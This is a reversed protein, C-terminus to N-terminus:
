GRLQYAAWLALFLPCPVTAVGPTYKWVGLHGTGNPFEMVVWFWALPAALPVTTADTLHLVV